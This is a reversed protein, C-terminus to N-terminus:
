LIHSSCHFMWRLFNMYDQRHYYRFSLLRLHMTFVYHSLTLTLSHDNNLAFEAIKWSYWPSFFNIQHHHHPGSQEVGVRQTRNKKITSAWQFLLGHITMNSWVSVNDQNRVL